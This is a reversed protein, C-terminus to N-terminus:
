APFVSLINDSGTMTVQVQHSNGSGDEFILEYTGAAAIINGNRVDSVALRGPTIDFTAQESAGPAVENLRVFDFMQKKMKSKAQTPVVKFKLYATIVIDGILPGTNEVNVTVKCGSTQSTSPSLEDSPFSCSTPTLVATTKFTTLSLGSGFEFIPPPASASQPYYRYTRGEDATLDHETMKTRNVWGKDYVTYPMRGWRNEKGFLSLAIAEGGRSGSDLSHILFIALAVVFRAPLGASFISRLVTPLM